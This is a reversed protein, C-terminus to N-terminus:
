AATLAALTESSMLQLLADATKEKRDATLTRGQDSLRLIAADLADVRDVIELFRKSFVVKSLGEGKLLSRILSGIPEGDQSLAEEPFLPEPDILPAFTALAPRPTATPEPTVPAETVIATPLASEVAAM